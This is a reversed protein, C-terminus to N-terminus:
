PRGILFVLGTSGRPASTVGLYMPGLGTDAGLYVSGGMRLDGLSVDARRLWVNGAELSAGVFLGRTLAVDRGTRLYWNLRGLLLHNGNLQGALYGSLQQFGGLTFRGVLASGGEDSLSARLTAAVTHPGFSRAAEADLTLRGFAEELTGRRRGFAGEAEIRYGSQPFLAYDLQDLVLRVRLGTEVTSVPARAGTFAADLLRPATRQHAQVLGVRWEGYRAWPQGLDLAVRSAVRDFVALEDGGLTFLSVDRREISAAASVFADTDLARSWQLPHYLETGLLPNEGITLRNRWETGSRTLWRREHAIKLDFQSRGAFNTRLDVGARLYNPGWPKDELGFVLRDGTESHELRYDVRVFDGSAALRRVDREARTPDFPTGPRSELTSQLRTPDALTSGEFAVAALRTPLDAGSRRREGWGPPPGGPALAQLRDLARRAAAEGAAMMEAARAFDASSLGELAPRILVDQPGLLGLSRQVNQETLINIMQATLGVVSGLSDRGALPTGVNVAIVVEAGMRRAVDVPLNNVLGGDGLLRGGRETPAFVGPVSMSSRMAQALDGRDLEVAQGTEMDTAIARFRIPLADFNAVERAPLTYRRLLSELGRSSVVSQPLKLEGDRVGLELVTSLEFDQEKRRAPLEPRSVRASFLEGWRVARLEREIEGPSMGSAYLGGIISGMSTGVVVDVAVGAEQLVKLVGVHALGRAGGGSLVLGIRARNTDPRTAAASAEAAAAM